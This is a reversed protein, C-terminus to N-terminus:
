KGSRSKPVGHPPPKVQVTSQSEDLQSKSTITLVGDNSVTFVTVGFDEQRWERDDQRSGFELDEISRPWKGGIKFYEVSARRLAIARRFGFEMNNFMPLLVNDRHGKQGLEGNGVSSTSCGAVSISIGLIAVLRRM